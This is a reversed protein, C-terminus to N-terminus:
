SSKVASRRRRRRRRELAEFLSSHSRNFRRAITSVSALGAARAREAVICRAHALARTRAASGMADASVGLEAATEAILQELPDAGDGDAAAPDRGARLRSVATEGFRDGALVRGDGATGRNFQASDDPDSGLSLLHQYARRASPIDAGLIRLVFETSLWPVRGLGLYARHGSWPYAAPDTVLGARVPNLHIYRTLRLLHADADVLVARYRREFLHGTTPVRQQLRRAYQSAIRQMLPGLPTDAVQVALHVHNTMWCYAHVRAGFRELGEAVLDELLTRDSPEHFIPQRHNGRLVVHYLGGPVHLRPLRPM